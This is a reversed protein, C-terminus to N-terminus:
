VEPTFGYFTEYFEVAAEAYNEHSYLDPHLQSAIYLSGLFSAPVPSDWSEISGPIQIVAGNQVATCGALVTDALVDEATYDADAAIVIAEPNWALLQEYSVEVWYTDTIEKAANEAGANTLLTHQYMGPGATNLFASNGSLYVLPQRAGELAVELEATSEHITNLLEAARDASGTASGLMSVAEELLAQSEPNVVIATFGLEELTAAADKLKLPLVVLDPNLAACGELDFSKMTGMGPLSILEPASLQYIARTDAKNEVGVLKDQQGLAILMSTAIYYGSVISEPESEITVSRGAHDTITVPYASEANASLAACLVLVLALLLALIKKM